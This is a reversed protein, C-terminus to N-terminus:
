ESAAYPAQKRKFLTRGSRVFLVIFGFLTLLVFALFDWAISAFVLQAPTIFSLLTFFFGTVVSFMGLLFGTEAGTKSARYWVFMRYNKEVRWLYWSLLAFFVAAYLQVPHHPEVVSPFTIGTPLTTPTGMGTGDFFFGLYLFVFSTTVALIWFDLLEFTDWKHKRAQRILVLSAFLLGVKGIMGPYLGVDIWKAIAFGFDGAHLLIFSVRAVFFGILSALFFGDFLEREDYHEERGKKWFVYLCSLFALLTCITATRLEFPGFAFLTPFM